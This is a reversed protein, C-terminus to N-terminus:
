APLMLSLLERQHLAVVFCFLPCAFSLLMLSAVVACRWFGVDFVGCCSRLLTV